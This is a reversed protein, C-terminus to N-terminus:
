ADAASIRRSSRWANLFAVVGAGTGSVTTAGAGLFDRAATQNEAEPAAPM